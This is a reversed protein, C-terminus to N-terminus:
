VLYMSSEYFRIPISISLDRIMGIEELEELHESADNYNDVFLTLIVYDNLKWIYSSRDLKKLSNMLGIEYKTKFIALLRSYGGYGNPFFATLVKCDKLIKMFHRRVTIWKVDLRGAVKGYSENPKRMENYVSWDMKSWGKPYKDEKFKGETDELIFHEAEAQAPFSPIVSDTFKLDSGNKRFILLSSRGSLAIAHTVNSDSAAELNRLMELPNETTRTIEISFGSNCFLFPGLVKRTEHATKLLETTSNLSNYPSIQRHVATDSIRPNHRLMEAYNRLAYLKRM